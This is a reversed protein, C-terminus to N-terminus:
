LKLGTQSENQDFQKRPIDQGRPKHILRTKDCDQENDYIVTIDTQCVNTVKIIANGHM